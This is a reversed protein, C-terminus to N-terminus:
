KRRGGRAAIAVVGVIVVVVILCLFLHWPRLAGM